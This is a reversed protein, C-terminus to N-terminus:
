SQIVRASKRTDLKKAPRQVVRPTGARSDKASRGGPALQDAQAMSVPTAAEDEDEFENRSRKRVSGNRLERQSSPQDVPSSILQADAKSLHHVKIDPKPTARPSVDSFVSPISKVPSRLSSEPFDPQRMSYSNQILIRRQEDVEQQEEESLAVTNSTKGKTAKKPPPHLSKSETYAKQENATLGPFPENSQERGKDKKANLSRTLANPRLSSSLNNNATRAASRSPVQRSKENTETPTRGKAQNETVEAADGDARLERGVQQESGKGLGSKPAYIEDDLSKAESLSSVTSLSRGRSRERTEDKEDEPDRKRKIGNMAPLPPPRIPPTPAAHNPASPAPPVSSTSKRAQAAQRPPQSVIPTTFEIITGNMRGSRSTGPYPSFQSSNQPHSHFTPATPATRLFEKANLIFRNFVKREHKRATGDLLNSLIALIEPRSTAETWINRLGLNSVHDRRYDAEALAASLIRQIDERPRQHTSSSSDSSGVMQPTHPQHSQQSSVTPSAATNSAPPSVRVRKPSPEMVSTGTRQGLESESPKAPSDQTASAAQRAARRTMIEDPDYSTSRPSDDAPSATEARSTVGNSPAVDEDTQAPTSQRYQKSPLLKLRQLLKPTPKEGLPVMKELVGHRELGKYDEFSPAPERLPPEVWKDMFTRSDSKVRISDGPSNENEKQPTAM